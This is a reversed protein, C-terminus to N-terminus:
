DVNKLEKNLDEDHLVGYDIDSKQRITQRYLLIINQHDEKYEAYHINIYVYYEDTRYDVFTRWNFGHLILYRRFKLLLLHSLEILEEKSLKKKPVFRVCITPVNQILVFGFEIEFADHKYPEVINSLEDKLTIDFTHRVPETAMFATFICKVDKKFQYVVKKLSYSPHLIKEILLSSTILLLIIIIFRLVNM